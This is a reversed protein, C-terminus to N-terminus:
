PKGKSHITRLSEGGTYVRSREHPRDFLNREGGLAQWERYLAREEQTLRAAVREGQAMARLQSDLTQRALRWRACAFHRRIAHLPRM